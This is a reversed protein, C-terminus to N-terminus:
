KEHCGNDDEDLISQCCIADAGPSLIYCLHCNESEENNRVLDQDAHDDNARAAEFRGELSIGGFFLLLSHRFPVLQLWVAATYESRQYNRGDNPERHTHQRCKPDVRSSEVSDLLLLVLLVRQRGCRHESKKGFKPLHPWHPDELPCHCKQDPEVSVLMRKHSGM